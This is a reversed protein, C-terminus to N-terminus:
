ISDRALQLVERHFGAAVSFANMFDLVEAFGPLGKNFQIGTHMDPSSRLALTIRLYRGRDLALTHHRKVLRRYERLQAPMESFKEALQQSLNRLEGNLQVDGSTLQTPVPLDIAKRVGTRLDVFPQVNRVARAHNRFFDRLVNPPPGMSSTVVHYEFARLKPLRTNALDVISKADGPSMAASRDHIVLSHIMDRTPSSHQELYRHLLRPAPAVKGNYLLESDYNCLSLDANNYIIQSAEVYLTRNAMALSTLDLFDFHHITPFAADVRCSHYSHDAEHPLDPRDCHTRSYLLRDSFPPEFTFTVRLGQRIPDVLLLQYIKLRIEPPLDCLRAM